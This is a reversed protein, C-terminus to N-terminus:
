SPQPDARDPRHVFVALSGLVCLFAMGMLIVMLISGALAQGDLEWPDKSPNLEINVLMMVIPAPPAWTLLLRWITRRRDLVAFVIWIPTALLYAVAPVIAVHSLEDSALYGIWSLVGVLLVAAILVLYRLAPRAAFLRVIQNL